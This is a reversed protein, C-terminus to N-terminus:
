YLKGDSGPCVLVASKVRRLLQRREEKISGSDLSSTEVESESAVQIARHYESYVVPDSAIIDDLDGKATITGDKM